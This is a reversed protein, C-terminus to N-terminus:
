LEIIIVDKNDKLDDMKKDRVVGAKGSFYRAHLGFSIFVIPNLLSQDIM